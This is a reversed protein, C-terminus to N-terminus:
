WFLRAVDELSFLYGILVLKLQTYDGKDGQCKSPLYPM